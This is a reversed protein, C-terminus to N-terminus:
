ATCVIDYGGRYKYEIKEIECFKTRKRDMCFNCDKYIFKYFKKCASISTIKLYVTYISKNKSEHYITSEIGNIFLIEQMKEIFAVSGFTFSVMPYTNHQNRTFCISGDGDFVGRIFDAQLEMPINPYEATCSKRKTLKNEELFRIACDNRYVLTTTNDRFYM